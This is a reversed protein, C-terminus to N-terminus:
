ENQAESEKIINLISSMAKQYGAHYSNREELDQQEECYRKINEIITRDTTLSQEVIRLDKISDKITRTNGYGEGNFRIHGEYDSEVLRHLAELEKSM